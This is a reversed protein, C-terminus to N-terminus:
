VRGTLEKPLMEQARKKRQTASFAPHAALLLPLMPSQSAELGSLQRDDLKGERRVFLIAENLIVGFPGYPQEVLRKKREDFYEMRSEFLPFDTHVKSAADYRQQHEYIDILLGKAFPCPVRELILEAENIAREANGAFWEARARDMKVIASMPYLLSAEKLAQKALQQRGLTQLLLGRQHQVQWNNPAITALENIEKEAQEYRHLTQWDLMANALRADISKPMGSSLMELYAIERRATMILELAKERDSQAALTISALAIGAHPEAYSKDEEKAAELCKLAKELGRVSDPDARLKGDVLCSFSKLNPPKSESATSTLGRGIATAVEEALRTQELLNDSAEARIPKGWLQAGTRASVIMLQLEVFEATGKTVPQYNGTVFADVKLDKGLSIFEEPTKAVMPRFPTVAVEGMRSLENVLLAALTDGRQLDKDAVPEVYRGHKPATLETSGDQFSLVALREIGMLERTNNPSALGGVVAGVLGGATATLFQRRLMEGTAYGSEIRKVVPDIQPGTRRLRVALDAASLPRTEPDKSLCEDILDALEVDDRRRIPDPDPTGEITFAFRDAMTEGTIAPRGYFAEFLICGLSFIDAASTVTAGRAQEPAMFGPTGLIVGERTKGDDSGSLSVDSSPVRSLGFDVLKIITTDTTTTAGSSETPSTLDASSSLAVPGDGDLGGSRRILMVNHPKLDRHIVGGQHAAALADCIQAGLQRTEVVTLPAHELRDALSEGDLFEMVAYPLGNDVGVDFLEVINPHSLAAVAKAEREFRETLEARKKEGVALVKIAVLRNLRTDTAAYVVGMGGKGLTPGIRYPGIMEGEQPLTWLVDSQPDKTSVPEDQPPLDIDSPTAVNAESTPVEVAESDEEASGPKEGASELALEETEIRDQEDFGAQEDVSSQGVIHDQEAIQDQEAIPDQEAIQSTEVISPEDASDNEADVSSSSDTDGIGFPEQEASELPFETGASTPEEKIAEVADAEFQTPDEEDLSEEASSQPTATEEGATDSPALAVENPMNSSEQDPENVSDHADSSVFDEKASSMPPAPAFPERISRPRVAEDLEDQIALLEQRLLEAYDGGFESVLNDISPPKGERAKSEYALCISDIRALDEASLDNLNM